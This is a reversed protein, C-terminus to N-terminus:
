ALEDTQEAEHAEDTKNWLELRALIDAELAPYPSTPYTIVHEYGDVLVNKIDSVNYKYNKDQLAMEEAKKLLVPDPRLIQKYELTEHKAHGDTLILELTSLLSKVGVTKVKLCRIMAPLLVVLRNIIDVLIDSVHQSFTKSIRLGAENYPESDVISKAIKSVYYVFGYTDSESVPEEAKPAPEEVKPVETPSVAETKKARTVGHLKKFEKEYQKKLALAAATAQEAAVRSAEAQFSASTSYLAFLPLKSPDALHFNDIHVIKRNAKKCHEIAATSIERAVAELAVSLAVSSDKAIPFRQDSLDKLQKEIPAAADAGAAVTAKLTELEAATAARIVTEYQTPKAPVAEVKKGDVICEPVAPTAEAILKREHVKGTKCAVKATVYKPDLMEKLRKVEGVVLSNLGTRDLYNRVRPHAIANQQKVAKAPAANEVPASDTKPQTPETKKPATSTKKAM